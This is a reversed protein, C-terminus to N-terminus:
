SKAADTNMELPWNVAGCNCVVHSPNLGTGVARIVSNCKSCALLDWYDRFADAISRFEAVDFNAWASYHVAKNVLWQEANIRQAIQSRQSDIEQLRMLLDNNGWSPASDKAKKLFEKYASAAAPYLHGLDWSADEKYFVKARLNACANSFFQESGRRLRAAAAPVDNKELDQAIADWIDTTSNVRPGTELNWSYLEITSKSTVVGESKLQSAWTRDHTTIILQRNSFNRNLLVCLNKRHGSDVSMVVDDLLILDIQDKTLHEVLALYLCLGMSDQHGESHLAHPPHSGRGHFDVELILGASEPRIAAEFALEDEEHITRYFEVFRTKIKEYLEGLIEDRAKEFERLFIAARQAALASIEAKAQSKELFALNTQLATLKDWALRGPSKEPSLTKVKALIRDLIEHINGPLWLAHVDSEPFETLKYQDVPNKLANMLTTIHSASIELEQAEAVSDVLGAAQIVRRLTGTVTSLYETMENAIGMLLEHHESGKSAQAAEEELHQALEGAAWQTGCLPCYGSEDLLSIGLKILERRTYAKFLQPDTQLINVITRLRTDKEKFAQERLPSLLIKMNELDGLVQFDPQNSNAAEPPEIGEKLTAAEILTLSVGGLVQRHVNISALLSSEDYEALGATSNVEGRAESLTHQDSRNARETDTGVSVLTKRINEIESLDLLSQIEKARTGDDATIYRLIDRRTLMHHGRAVISLLHNLKERASEPNCELKSPKSLSRKVTVPVKFAPIELIASVFGTKQDADIHGGHDRLTIRGTGTGTLRKIQGTFLFDIADIISSKGVGNPGLVLLNKGKPELHLDRIGRVNHIQIEQIKM